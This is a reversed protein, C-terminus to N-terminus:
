ASFKVPVDRKSFVVQTLTGNNNIIGSNIDLSSVPHLTNCSLSLSVTNTPLQVFGDPDLPSLTGTCDASWPNESNTFELINESGITINDDLNLSAKVYKKDSNMCNAILYSGSLHIDICTDVFGGTAARVAVTNLLALALTLASFQM